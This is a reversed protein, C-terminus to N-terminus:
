VREGFRHSRENVTRASRGLVYFLVGGQSPLPIRGSIRIKRLQLRDHCPLGISPQRLDGRRSQHNVPFVVTQYRRFVAPHNRCPNGTGFQRDNRLCAVNKRGILWVDSMPSNQLEEGCLSRTLLLPRSGNWTALATSSMRTGRVSLYNSSTEARSAAHIWRYLLPSVVCRTAGVLDVEIISSRSQHRAAHQIDHDPVQIALRIETSILTCIVGFGDGGIRIGM